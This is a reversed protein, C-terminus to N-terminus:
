VSNFLSPVMSRIEPIVLDLLFFSPFEPSDTIGAQAVAAHLPHYPCSLRVLSDPLDERECHESAPHVNWVGKSPHANVIYLVSLKCLYQLKRIFVHKFNKKRCVPASHVNWTGQLPLEVGWILGDLVDRSSPVGTEYKM